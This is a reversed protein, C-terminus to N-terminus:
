RGAAGSSGRQGGSTCRLYKGSKKLHSQRREGADVWTCDPLQEFGGSGRSIGESFSRQGEARREGAEVALDIAELAVLGDFAKTLGEIKLQASM